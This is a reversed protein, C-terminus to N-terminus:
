VYATGHMLPIRRYKQPGSSQYQKILVVSHKTLLYTGYVVSAELMADAQMANVTFDMDALAVHIIADCWVVMCPAKHLKTDLCVSHQRTPGPVEQIYFCVYGM